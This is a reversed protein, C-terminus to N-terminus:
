NLNLRFTGDEDPLVVKQAVVADTNIPGYIHPFSDGDAPEYKL